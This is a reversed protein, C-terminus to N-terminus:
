KRLKEDIDDYADNAFMVGSYSRNIIEDYKKM